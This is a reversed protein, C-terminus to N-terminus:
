ECTEQQQGKLYLCAAARLAANGSHALAKIREVCETKDLVECALDGATSLLYDAYYELPECNAAPTLLLAGLRRRAPLPAGDEWRACLGIFYHAGVDFLPRLFKGEERLFWARTRFRGTALEPNHDYLDCEPIGSAWLFKRGARLEGKVVAIVHFDGQCWHINHGWPQWPWPLHDLTQEGYSSTNLVEGVAVIPSM